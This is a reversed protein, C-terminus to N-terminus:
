DCDRVQTFDGQGIITAAIIGWKENAGLNFIEILDKKSIHL